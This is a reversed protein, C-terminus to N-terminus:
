PEEGERDEEEGIEDPGLLARLNARYREERAAQGAETVALLGKKLDGPLFHYRDDLRVLTNTTRIAEELAEGMLERIRGLEADTEPIAM